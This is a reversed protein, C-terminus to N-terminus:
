GADMDEMATGPNNGEEQDQGHDNGVHAPCYEQHDCWGCLKSPVAKEFDATERTAQNLFEIISRRVPEISTVDYMKGMQIADTKLFNIGVKIGTLDPHAAKLLLVYGLFQNQFYKLDHQKGTKHDLVLGHPTGRFLVSLDLVGRMFARKDFFKVPRGELDVALRQEIAPTGANHRKCYSEFKQMFNQVAPQFFMVRDLEESMLEYQAVVADFAKSLPYGGLVYEVAKHVANGVLADPNTKRPKKLIYTFHFRKPCEAAVNAKSVSWPAYDLVFQTPQPAQEEM